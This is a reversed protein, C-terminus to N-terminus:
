ARYGKMSPCCEHSLNSYNLISEVQRKEGYRFPMENRRNKKPPARHAAAASAVIKAYRGAPKRVRLLPLATAGKIKCGSHGLTLTPRRSLGTFARRNHLCAGHSLMSPGLGLRRAVRPAIRLGATLRRQLGPALSRGQWPRCPRFLFGDGGRPLGSGKM